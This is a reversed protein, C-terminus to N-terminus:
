VIDIEVSLPCHDSGLWEKHLDIEKVRTGGITSLIYDIRWGINRKRASYAYPWWTYGRANTNKERYLDHLGLSLLESFALREEASFMINDYNNKYREVDLETHAINFDGVIVMPKNTKISDEVIRYIADYSDLKYRLEKKDRGGHPMYLNVLSFDSYELCICRGDRDFRELGVNNRMGKAQMKSLVYVGNHGKKESFNYYKEYGLTFITNLLEPDSVKVEQFCIIDPQEALIRSLTGYDDCTNFGNINWSYVKM